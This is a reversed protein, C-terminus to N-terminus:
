RTGHDKSRLVRYDVEIQDQIKHVQVILSLLQDRFEDHHGIMCDRAAQIKECATQLEVSAMLLEESQSPIKNRFIPNM